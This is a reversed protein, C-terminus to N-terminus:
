SKGSGRCLSDCGRVTTALGWTTSARQFRGQFTEGGSECDSAEGCRGIRSSGRIIARAPYAKNRYFLKTVSRSPVGRSTKRTRDLLIP